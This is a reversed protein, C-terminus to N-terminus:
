REVCNEKIQRLSLPPAEQLLKKNFDGETVTSQRCRVYSLHIHKDQYVLNQRPKQTNSILTNFGSKVDGFIGKSTAETPTTLKPTRPYRTSCRSLMAFLDLSLLRVSQWPRVRTKFDDFDQSKPKGVLVKPSLAYNM